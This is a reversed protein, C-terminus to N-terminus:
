KMNLLSSIPPDAMTFFSHSFISQCAASACIYACSLESMIDLDEIWLGFEALDYVM